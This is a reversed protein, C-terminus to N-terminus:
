ECTTLQAPVTQCLGFPDHLGSRVSLGGCVARHLGGCLFLTQQVSLLSLLAHLGTASALHGQRRSGGWRAVDPKNGCRGVHLAISARRRIRDASDRRMRVIDGNCCNRRCDRSRLLLAQLGPFCARQLLRVARLGGVGLGHRGAGRLEVPSACIRQVLREGILLLLQDRRHGHDYLRRQGFDEHQAVSYVPQASCMRGSASSATLCAM